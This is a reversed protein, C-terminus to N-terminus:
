TSKIIIFLVGHGISNVFNVHILEWLLRLLYQCWWWGQPVLIVSIYLIVQGLSIALIHCNQSKIGSLKITSHICIIVISCAKLTKWLQTPYHQKIVTLRGQFARGNALYHCIKLFAFVYVWKRRWLVLVDHTFSHTSDMLTKFRYAHQQQQQQLYFM